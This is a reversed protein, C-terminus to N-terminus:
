GPTMILKISHPVRWQPTETLSVEDQTTQLQKTKMEVLSVNFYHSVTSTCPLGFIMSVKNCTTSASFLSLSSVFFITFGDLVQETEM